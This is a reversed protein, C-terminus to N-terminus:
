AWDHCLVRIEWRRRDHPIAQPVQTKRNLRERLDFFTQVTWGSKIAAALVVTEAAWM